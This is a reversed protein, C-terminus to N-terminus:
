MTRPAVQKTSDKDMTILASQVVFPIGKDGTPVYIVAM